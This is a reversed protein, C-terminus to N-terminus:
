LAITPSLRWTVSLDTGTARATEKGTVSLFTEYPDSSDSFGSPDTCTQNLSLSPCFPAPGLSGIQKYPRQENQIRGGRVKALVELDDTVYGATLRYQWSEEDGVKGGLAPNGADFFGDRSRYAVAGRIAIQENVPVNLAGNGSMENYRGYSLDVYGNLGAAPDPKRSIFNLLGASANRGYLTGQPGRLVEVRELDLVQFSQSLSSGMVVGDTYVAVPSVSNTQFNRNGLGRVYYQPQSFGWASRFVVNPVEDAVDTSSVIGAEQLADGTMVSISAPLEQVTEARRSATVTVEELGAVDAAYTHPSIGLALMIGLRLAWPPCITTAATRPM